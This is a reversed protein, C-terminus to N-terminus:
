IRPFSSIIRLSFYSNFGVESNQFVYKKNNVSINASSSMKNLGAVSNPIKIVYVPRLDSDLNNREANVFSTKFRYSFSVRTQKSLFQM